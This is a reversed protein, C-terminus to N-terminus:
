TVRGYFHDTFRCMIPGVVLYVAFICGLRKNSTNYQLVNSQENIM